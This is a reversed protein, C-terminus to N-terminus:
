FEIRIRWGTSSHMANVHEDAFKAHFEGVWLVLMCTGAIIKVLVM